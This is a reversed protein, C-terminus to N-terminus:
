LEGRSVAFTPPTALPGRTQLRGLRLQEKWYGQGEPLPNPSPNALAVVVDENRKIDVSRARVRARGWRSLSCSVAQRYITPSRPQAKAAGHTRM